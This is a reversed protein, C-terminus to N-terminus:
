LLSFHAGHLKALLNLFFSGIDSQAHHGFRNQSLPERLISEYFPKYSVNLKLFFDSIQGRVDNPLIQPCQASMHSMPCVNPPCQASMPCINPLCQLGGYVYRKLSKTNRM